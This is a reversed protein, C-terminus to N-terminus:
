VGSLLRVGSEVSTPPMGPPRGGIIPQAAAVPVSDTSAQTSNAM